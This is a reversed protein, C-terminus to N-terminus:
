PLERVLERTIVAHEVVVQAARALRTARPGVLDADIGLVGYTITTSWVACYALLWPNRWGGSLTLVLTNLGVTAFLWVALRNRM